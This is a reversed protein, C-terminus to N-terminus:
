RTILDLSSPYMLDKIKEFPVVCHPAGICYAGIEYEQYYFAVGKDTIWPETAPLPLQRNGERKYGDISQSMEEDSEVEFYQEKLADFIIANLRRTSYFIDWGFRRGDSLRFTAGHMSSYGHAGGSYGNAYRTYTVFKDNEYAKLFQLSMECNDEPSWDDREMQYEYMMLGRVDNVDGDYCYPQAEAIWERIIRVTAGNGSVPFDIEVNYAFGKESKKLSHREVAFPAGKETAHSMAQAMLISGTGLLAVFLFLRKLKYKM